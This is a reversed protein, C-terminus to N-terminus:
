YLSGFKRNIYSFCQELKEQDLEQVNFTIQPTTFVTKTNDIVKNNLEGQFNGLDQLNAINLKEKMEDSMKMVSNLLASKNKDIGSTLNKIMDPMYTLENRLPGKKPVSHGIFDRIIQGIGSAAESLSIRSKNSTLGNSLNTVADEGDKKGITNNNYSTRTRKALEEAANESSTDKVFVDTAKQVELRTNGDLGELAKAFALKDNEALTKWAQKQDDTLGQVSSTQKQLTKITEELKEKNAKQDDSLMESLYQKNNLVAESSINQIKANYNTYQEIQSTLSSECSKSVDDYGKGMRQMAQELQEASGTASASVLNEYNSITQGYSDIMSYQEQLENKITKLQQEADIKAKGSSSQYTKMADDYKKMLEIYNNVAESSNKVAEEYEKQYANLYAEARKKTIVAQIGDKLESYQAIIGDNLKYETGLASNLENLIYSARGEYSDKVKGNEDTIQELEDALKQIYDIEAMSNTLSEKRSEQLDKWSQQQNDLEKKLGGLSNIENQTKIALAVTAATLATVGLTAVGLPSSILSLIKALKDVSAVGTTAGTRMAGIAQSFLGVGKIANGTTSTVKGIIKVLPGLAAIMLGTNVINETEKDTLGNLKDMFKDVRDLVKSITPTLKNGLSTALNSAKNMTKKFRSELTAYRKNAENTLATNKDWEQNGIEIAKSFISSANASRLLSDRLRTETIGMDDLIKIASKGREGSKSLGEVFKMIATTADEKFARKFETTSMGAVSAFNKLQNGGKEVALQMNVMVKSFATGGAQAELGVSSLATALAMIQSQSMGVQTGASALNMGMDAIESETTAFNNGLAVIVSGLKNFDSQKMKTINAFRALTTAAEDASLNTANGMDIMTKTFSLVNDTQIGLQGAAEAVASIETTSSPIETSLDKIGQKLNAIQEETGDVTKEVGTFATEFDMASKVSAVGAGVISVTFVKTLKNGLNEIRSGLKDIKGGFEELKKGAQTWNSAELKLAKLKNETSIIERQLNRWNEESIKSGNVEAEVGRQYTSHLLKLKNETDEINESLVQQRQSLLETNKPDLKLLSNVGRLEKTLSSTASNVKSLAKQLGSADGGIEVIIGKITGAM